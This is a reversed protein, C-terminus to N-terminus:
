KLQSGDLVALSKVTEASAKRVDDPAAVMGRKTLAGDPNWNSAFTNLFAQLGPIATMHAKKVYIYLARAGPYKGTSVTEYTAEVGNITVDKLTDKNEELFSYGFVGLANPNAGLKQVILNDNEGSDVYKGDERVRTCTAKFEDESKEKLAKMAPDTECGKTLILEALSDRTGSTSPPGFVSIPTAPLSPDVDKWTEAKNPGKGYPNAALAEYVIKPTLKLGPGNKAEAFALGDVGVQIEIIDKVGNKQCDEFESKKIRRSANEIDPYQAGVGACFLKMGGGTGTSEIIPSKMGPNGQVFMEAIATAFPYVTSSGVARIQDRTGGAGGGSSQDGCGALTLAAAATAALLAFHKM